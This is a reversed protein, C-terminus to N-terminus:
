AIGAFVQASMFFGNGTKFLGRSDLRVKSLCMVVKTIGQVFLGKGDLRSAFWL